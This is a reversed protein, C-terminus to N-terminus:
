AADSLYKVPYTTANYQNPGIAARGALYAEVGLQLEGSAEAIFDGRVFINAQGALIPKDRRNRVAARLYATSALSPSRIKKWNPGVDFTWM